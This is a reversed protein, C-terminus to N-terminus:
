SRQEVLVSAPLRPSPLYRGPAPRFLALVMQVTEGPQAWRRLAEAYFSAMEPFEQLGQSLPLLEGGAARVEQWLRQLRRGTELREANGNGRSSLVVVQSVPGLAQAFMEKASKAYETASQPFWQALTEIWFLQDRSFNPALTIGWPYTNRAAEGYRTVSISEDRTRPLDMELDFAAQAWSKTAAMEASDTIWRIRVLADSRAEQQDRLVPPLAFGATRYKVTSATLADVRGPIDPAPAAETLRVLAGPQDALPEWAVEAGRVRAEDELVALFAGLSIALQRNFPDTEPLLRAPDLVLRRQEPHGPVSALRWSQVNHANAAWRARDALTQWSPLEATVNTTCWLLIIALLPRKM